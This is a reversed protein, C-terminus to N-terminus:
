SACRDGASVGEGQLLAAFREAQTKLDRYTWRGNERHREAEILAVNAKYTVISDRIAEGVSNTHSLTLM